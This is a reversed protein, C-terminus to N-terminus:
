GSKTSYRALLPLPAPPPSPPPPPPLTTPFGSLLVPAGLPRLYQM